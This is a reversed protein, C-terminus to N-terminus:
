ERSLRGYVDEPCRYPFFLHTILDCSMPNLMGVIKQTVKGMGLGKEPITTQKTWEKEIDERQEPSLLNWADEDTVALDSSDILQHLEVGDEVSVVGDSVMAALMASAHQRSFFPSGPWKGAAFANIASQRMQAALEANVSILNVLHDVQRLAEIEGEENRPKEVFFRGHKPGKGCECWRIETKM